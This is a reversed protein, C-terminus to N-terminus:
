TGGWIAEGFGLDPTNIRGHGDDPENIGGTWVPRTNANSLTAHILGNRTWYTAVATENLPTTGDRTVRVELRHPCTFDEASLRGLHEVLRTAPKLTSGAAKDCEAALQLITEPSGTHHDFNEVHASTTTTRQRRPAIV